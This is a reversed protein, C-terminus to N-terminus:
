LIQSSLSLCLQATEYFLCYYYSALDAIAPIWRLNTPSPIPTGRWSAMRHSSKRRLLQTQRLIRWFAQAAYCAEHKIFCFSEHCKSAAVRCFTPHGLQNSNFRNLMQLVQVIWTVVTIMNSACNNWSVANPRSKKQPKLARLAGYNVVTGTVRQFWLTGCSASIPSSQSSRSSALSCNSKYPKTRSRPTGKWVPGPSPNTPRGLPSSRSPPIRWASAAPWSVM